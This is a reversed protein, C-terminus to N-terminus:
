QKIYTDKLGSLVFSKCVFFVNVRKYKGICNGKGTSKIEEYPNSNNRTVEIQLKKLRFSERKNRTPYIPQHHERLKQKNPFTMIKEENKKISKSPVSNKTSLRKEGSNSYAM